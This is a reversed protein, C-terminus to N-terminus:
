KTVEAGIRVNSIATLPYVNGEPTILELDYVGRNWTIAETVDPGLRIIVAALDTDLEITGDPDTSLDSSLSLLVKGSVADRIQMRASCNTLDFPTPYELAGSPVFTRWYRDAVLRNLEITDADIVFATLWSGDDTNLEEPQKVGTVRVVWGDPIGHGPATLRVPVTSPMAAIAAYRLKEDAYRYMFEFTKGRVINIDVVPAGM